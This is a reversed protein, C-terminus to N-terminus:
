GVEARRSAGLLVDREEEEPRCAPHGGLRTKFASLRRRCSLAACCSSSQGLGPAPRERYRLAQPLRTAHGACSSAQTVQTLRLCLLRRVEKKYSDFTEQVKSRARKLCELCQCHSYGSHHGDQSNVEGVDKFYGAETLLRRIVADSRSEQPCKKKEEKDDCDADDEEEASDEEDSDDEDSDEEDSDEEDDSSATRLEWDYKIERWDKTAPFLEHWRPGPNAFSRRQSCDSCLISRTFERDMEIAQGRRFKRLQYLQTQWFSYPQGSMVSDAPFDNLLRANRLQALWVLTPHADPIKRAARAACYLSVVGVLNGYVLSPSMNRPFLSVLPSVPTPPRACSM